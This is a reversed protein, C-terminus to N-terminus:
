GLGSTWPARTRQELWAVLEEVVHSREPERENLTEHLLGPWIRLTKDPSRATRVFQETGSLASVSDDTGHFAYMPLGVQEARGLCDRCAQVFQTYWRLSVKGYNLPDERFARVVAADRSLQEPVIGTPLSLSPWARVLMRAVLHKWAAIPVVPVFGPSSLVLGAVPLGVRTRLLFQVAVVGGMSHGLLVLPTGPHRDRLSGLVCALDDAYDSFREVDGRGGGSLGHGQHDHAVVGFGRRCLATALEAYRGGHEGLGHVVVVLARPSSPIWRRVHLPGGTVGTTTATVPVIM